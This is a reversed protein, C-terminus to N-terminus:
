YESNLLNDNILDIEDKFFDNEIYILLESILDIITKDEAQSLAYIDYIFREDIFQSIYDKPVSSFLIIIIELTKIKIIYIDSDLHNLLINFHIKNINFFIFHKSNFINYISILINIRDEASDFELCNFFIDIQIDNNICPVFKENCYFCLSLTSLILVKGKSENIIPFLFLLMQHYNNEIFYDVWHINMVFFYCGNICNTLVNQDFDQYNKLIRILINLQQIAEEIDMKDPFDQRILISIVSTYFVLEENSLQYIDIQNLISIGNNELFHYKVVSNKHLVIDLISLCLLLSERKEIIALFYYIFKTASDNLNLELNECFFGVLSEIALNKLKQNESRGLKNLIQLVYDIHQSLEDIFIKASIIANIKSISSSVLNQESSNLGELVSIFDNIEEKEQYVEEKSVRLNFRNLFMFKIIKKSYFMWIKM